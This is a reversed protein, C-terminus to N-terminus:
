STALKLAEVGIYVTSASSPVSGNAFTLNLQVGNVLYTNIANANTYYSGSDDMAFDLFGAGDLLGSSQYPDAAAGYMSSMRNQLQQPTYYLNQLTGGTVLEISVIDSSPVVAGLGSDAEPDWVLFWLGLVQGVSIGTNQILAGVSAQGATPQTFYDRTYLWPYMPPNAAPSNSAFWAERNIQAAFSAGTYTSTTDTSPRSVPGSLLNGTPLQPNLTITPVVVRAQSAMAYPTVWQDYKRGVPDGTANLNFYEDFKWAVPIDINFKGAYASGFTPNSASADFACFTDPNNPGLQSSGWMPRLAQLAAAMFGPMRFSSYAAQLQVTIQQIINAPFFPSVALGTGTNTWEGGYQCAMKWGSVIDLQDLKTTPINVQSAALPTAALSANGGDQVFRRQTGYKPVGFLDGPNVTAQNNATGNGTGGTHPAATATAM